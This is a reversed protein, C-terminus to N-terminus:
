EDEPKPGVGIEAVSFAVPDTRLYTRLRALGQRKLGSPDLPNKYVFPNLSIAEITVHDCAGPRRGLQALLEGAILEAMGLNLTSQLGSNGTDAIASEQIAFEVVPTWDSILNDIESDYDAVTVGSKEKVKARTVTLSM